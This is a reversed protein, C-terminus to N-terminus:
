RLSASTRKESNTKLRQVRPVRSDFALFLLIAVFLSFMLWQLCYADSVSFDTVFNYMFVLYM